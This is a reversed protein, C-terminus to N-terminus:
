LLILRYSYGCYTKSSSRVMEQNQLVVANRGIKWATGYDGRKRKGTAATSAPLVTEDDEDLEDEEDAEDDEADSGTDVPPPKNRLVRRQPKVDAVVSDVYESESESTARAADSEAAITPVQHSRILRQHELTTASM